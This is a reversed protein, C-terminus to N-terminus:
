KMAKALKTFLDEAHPHKKMYAITIDALGAKKQVTEAAQDLTSKLRNLGARRILAPYDKNALDLDVNGTIGDVKGTSSYQWIGADKRNSKEHYYAYWLDYEKTTDEPFMNKLYDQNSYNMAYYGAKEIGSCFARVLKYALYKNITVGKTKAFKVTDYELDFCVPYEIKYPKIAALCYAAEKKAMAETYAYSFWYVGCPIGLRNCETINRKFQPDINNRGFGARIMAFQVGAKKVKEWDISGQHKSVDIGKVSM